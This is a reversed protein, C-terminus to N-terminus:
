QAEYQAAPPLPGIPKVIEGKIEGSHAVHSLVDSLMDAQDGNMLEGVDVVHLDRGSLLRGLHTQDRAAESLVPASKVSADIM